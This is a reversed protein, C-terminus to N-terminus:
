PALGRRLCARRCASRTGIGRRILGLIARTLAGMLASAPRPAEVVRRGRPRAPVLAPQPAPELWLPSAPGAAPPPAARTPLPMLQPSPCASQDRRAPHALGARAGALPPDGRLDRAAPLPPSAEHPRPDWLPRPGWPPPDWPPDLRLSPRRPRHLPRRQRRSMRARSRRWRSSLMVASPCARRRPRPRGPRPRGLQRRRTRLRRPRM